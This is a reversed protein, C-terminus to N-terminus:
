SIEGWRRDRHAPFDRRALIERADNGGSVRVGRGFPPMRDMRLGAAELRVPPVPVAEDRAVRHAGNAARAGRGARASGNRPQAESEGRALLILLAPEARMAVQRAVVEVEDGEEAIVDVFRRPPALVHAL